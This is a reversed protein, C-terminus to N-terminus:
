CNVIYSGDSITASPPFLCLNDSFGVARRHPFLPLFWFVSCRTGSYLYCTSFSRAVRIAADTIIEIDSCMKECIESKTAEDPQSVNYEYMCVYMRLFTGIYLTRFVAFLPSLM